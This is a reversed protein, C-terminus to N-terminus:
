SPLLAPRTGNGSALQRHCHTHVLRIPNGDPTDPRGEPAITLAKKKIAKRTTAFWQEWDQPCAPEHDAHLLYDGCSPCRGRRDM